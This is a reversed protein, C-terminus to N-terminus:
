PSNGHLLACPRETRAGAALHDREGLLEADRLRRGADEDPPAVAVRDVRPRKERGLTRRVIGKEESVHFPGALRDPLGHRRALADADV